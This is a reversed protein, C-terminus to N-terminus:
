GEADSSPNTDKIYMVILTIIGIVMLVLIDMLISMEFDPKRTMYTRQVFEELTYWEKDNWVNSRIMYEIWTILTIM